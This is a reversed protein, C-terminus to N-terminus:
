CGPVRVVLGCLCDCQFVASLYVWNWLEWLNGDNMVNLHGHYWDSVIISLKWMEILFTYLLQTNHNWIILIVYVCWTGVSICKM